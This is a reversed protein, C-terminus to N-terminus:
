GGALQLDEFDDLCRPVDNSMNAWLGEMARTRRVSLRTRGGLEARGALRRLGPDGERVFVHDNELHPLVAAAHVLDHAHLLEHVAQKDRGEKLGGLRRRRLSTLAMSRTIHLLVTNALLYM